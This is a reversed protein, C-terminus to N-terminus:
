SARRLDSEGESCCPGQVMAWPIEAIRYIVREESIQSDMGFSVQMGVKYPKFETQRGGFAEQDKFKSRNVRPPKRMKIAKDIGPFTL